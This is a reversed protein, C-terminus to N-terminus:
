AAVSAAPKNDNEAIDRSIRALLGYDEDAACFPHWRLESQNHLAIGLQEDAEFGSFDFDEIEDSEDDLDKWQPVTRGEASGVCIAGSYKLAAFEYGYPDGFQDFTDWLEALSPAWFVGEFKKTETHRVLYVKM